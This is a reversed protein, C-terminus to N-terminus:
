NEAADKLLRVHNGPVLPAGATRSLAQAALMRVPASSRPDFRSFDRAVSRM